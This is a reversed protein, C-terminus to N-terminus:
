CPCLIACALGPAFHIIFTGSNRMSLNQLEDRFLLCLFEHACAKPKLLAAAAAVFAATLPGEIM